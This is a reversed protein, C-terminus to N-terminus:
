SVRYKRYGYGYNPLDKPKINRIYLNKILSSILNSFQIYASDYYIWYEFWNFWPKVEQLHM